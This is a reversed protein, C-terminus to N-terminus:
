SAAQTESQEELDFLSLLSHEIVVAVAQLRSHVGLKALVNQVHTRATAQSIKLRAALAKTSEGQILGALVETERATLLARTPKGNAAPSKARRTRPPRCEGDSRLVQVLHQLSDGTTIWGHVGTKAVAAVEHTEDDVLALVRPRQPSAALCKMADFAGTVRVDILVTQATEALGLAEEIRSAVAVDFGEEELAIRIVDAALGDRHCVLTTSM